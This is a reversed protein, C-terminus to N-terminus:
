KELTIRVLTSGFTCTGRLRNASATFAIDRVFTDSGQTFAVVAASLTWTGAMDADLDGGGAAGGPVFLAGTTTGNPALTILLSGGATLHNTTVGGTTSTLITATYSGAVSDVSASFSDGGCALSSAMVALLAIRSTTQNMSHEKACLCFAAAAGALQL